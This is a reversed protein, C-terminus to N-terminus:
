GNYARGEARATACQTQWARILADAAERKFSFFADREVAVKYGELVEIYSPHAKAFQDAAAASMGDQKTAIQAAKSKLFEALYRVQARAEAAEKASTRLYDVASEVDEEAIM